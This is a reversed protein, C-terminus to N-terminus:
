TLQTQERVGTVIKYLVTLIFFGIGYVGLTIAVELLTPSYESIKGLPSPIFGTVIMGMGKEIWIAVIIACCIVALIAEQRRVSPFLMLVLCGVTLMASTWMWPVLATYDGIGIFLYEFHHM